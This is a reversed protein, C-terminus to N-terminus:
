LKMKKIAPSGYMFPVGAILLLFGLYVIEQGAGAITWFTFAFALSALLISSFWRKNDLYKQEIRIVIYSTMSFLYPVLSTLTSILILFEFQEVLGRTYNMMMLLSVLISSILIGAAPVGKKNEKGFIKPFLNDKATAYPIQGAILIWGNMAGFAAIAVGGSVWYRAHSGLIMSGADAFPTVSHQLSTAPIVGLVSVTGFIYVITTVLTGLM